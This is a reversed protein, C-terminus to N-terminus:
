HPPGSLAEGTQDRMAPLPAAQGLASALKWMTRPRVPHGRLASRLTPRSIRAHAALQTLSWGRMACALELREPMIVVLLGARDHRVRFWDASGGAHVRGDGSSVTV